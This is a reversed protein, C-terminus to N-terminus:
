LVLIRVSATRGGNQKRRRRKGNGAMEEQEGSAGAFKKCFWFRKHMKSCTARFRSTRRQHMPAANCRPLATSPTGFLTSSALGNERRLAHGGKRPQDAGGQWCSRPLRSLFRQAAARGIRAGRYLARM